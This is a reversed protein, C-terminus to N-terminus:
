SVGAINFDLVGDSTRASFRIDAKRTGPELTLNFTLIDIIGPTAAIADLYIGEIASISTAKQLITQFYPLGLDLDLFWDGEFSLLTQKTLQRIEEIGEVLELNSDVINIDQDETVGINM